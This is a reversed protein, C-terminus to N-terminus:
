PDGGFPRATPPRYVARDHQGAHDGRDGIGTGAVIGYTLYLLPLGGSSLSALIVGVGYLFGATTAVRRPRSM